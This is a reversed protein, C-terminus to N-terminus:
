TQLLRIAGRGSRPTHPILPMGWEFRVSLGELSCRLSALLALSPEADSLDALVLLLALAPEAGNLPEPVFFSPLLGPPPPPCWLSSGNLHCLM